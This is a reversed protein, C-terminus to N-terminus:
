GCFLQSIPTQYASIGYSLNIVKNGTPFGFSPLPGNSPNQSVSNGASEGFRLFEHKTYDHRDAPNLHFQLLTMFFILTDIIPNEYIICNVESSLSSSLFPTGNARPKKPDGSDTAKLLVAVDEALSPFNLNIPSQDGFIPPYPQDMSLQPLRREM